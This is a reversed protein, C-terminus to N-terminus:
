PECFPRRLVSGSPAGRLHSEPWSTRLGLEKAAHVSWFPDNLFHRALFVLDAKGERVLADAEQPGPILGVAGVPVGVEERIRQAFPVQYLPGVVSPAETRNGGTSVDVLDVGEAVLLRSLEVSEDLTWGDEGWDTASIRVLLPKDVPWAERVARVVELVLRIRNEFSGGYADERRNSLPSLFQHLLYGHAAHVEVIDYGARDARRAAAAFAQPIVGIQSTELARPVRHDRSFALESPGVVPWGWQGPALTGKGRGPPWTGAKRGAHGLQVASASGHSHLFSNIRALPAIQDDSWLGLDRPSIRGEPLVATAEQVILGAGGLALSGLHVLHFDEALGEKGASYTCMPSVVIRNSLTTGRLTLPDFLGAM